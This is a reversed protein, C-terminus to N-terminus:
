KDRLYSNKKYNSCLGDHLTMEKDNCYITPSSHIFLQFAM